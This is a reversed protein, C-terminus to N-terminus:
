IITIDNLWVIPHWFQEHSSALFYIELKPFHFLVDKDVLDASALIPGDMFSTLSIKKRSIGSKLLYRQSNVLRVTKIITQRHGM